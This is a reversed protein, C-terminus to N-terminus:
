PIGGDRTRGFCKRANMNCYANACCDAQVLCPETPGRCNACRGNTCQGNCCGITRASSCTAGMSLCSACTNSVRDCGNNCCESDFFCSAGDAKCPLGCQSVAAVCHPAGSCCANDTQCSEGACALQGNGGSSGGGTTGGGSSGGGSAGGGSASGGGTGGTSIGCPNPGTLVQCPSSELCLVQGQTPNAACIRSCASQAQPTPAGCNMAKNLCRTACDVPAGGGGNGGSAQGGGTSNLLACAGRQCSQAGACGVCLNGGAGCAGAENGGRCVGNSDCCGSCLRSDCGRDTTGCSSSVIWVVAIIARLKM